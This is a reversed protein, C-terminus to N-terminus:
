DFHLCEAEIATARVPTLGLSHDKPEAVVAQVVTFAPVAAVQRERQLGLELEELAEEQVRVPGVPVLALMVVLLLLLVQDTKATPDLPRRLGARCSNLLWVDSTGM